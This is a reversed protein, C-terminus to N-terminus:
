CKEKALFPLFLVTAIKLLQVYMETADPEVSIQSLYQIWESCILLKRILPRIAM